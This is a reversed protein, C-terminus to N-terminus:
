VAVSLWPFTRVQPKLIVTLSVTRGINFQWDIIKVSLALPFADVEMACSDGLAVSAQPSADSVADLRFKVQAFTPLM